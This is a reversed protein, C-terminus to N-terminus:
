RRATKVAAYIAAVIRRRNSKSRESVARPRWTWEGPGYAPHILGRDEATMAGNLVLDDLWFETRRALQAVRDYGDQRETGDLICTTDVVPWRAWFATM